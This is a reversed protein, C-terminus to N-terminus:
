TGQSIEHVLGGYKSTLQDLQNNNLATGDRFEAESAEYDNRGVDEVRISSVKVPKGSIVVQDQGENMNGATKINVGPGGTGRRMSRATRRRRRRPQAPENVRAKITDLKKRLEGLKGDQELIDNVKM